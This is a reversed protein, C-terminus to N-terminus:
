RGAPPDVFSLGPVATGPSPLLPSSGHSRDLPVDAFLDELEDVHHVLLLLDGAVDDEAPDLGGDLEGGLPVEGDLLADVDVDVPGGAVDGGLLAVLLDVRLGEAADGGLGGLLHHDLLDALGLRVGNVVLVRGLLALQDDPGDGADVGARGDDRQALALRQQGAALLDGAFGVVDA